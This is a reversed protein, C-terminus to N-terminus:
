TVPQKETVLLGKDWVPVKKAKVTISIGRKMMFENSKDNLHVRLRQQRYFSGSQNLTETCSSCKFTAVWTGTLQGLFNTGLLSFVISNLLFPCM